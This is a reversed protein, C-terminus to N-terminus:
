GHAWQRLGISMITWPQDVLKNWAYCCLDVITDYSTFVRYSLWNYLMF